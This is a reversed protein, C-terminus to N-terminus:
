AGVPMIGLPLGTTTAKSSIKSVNRTIPITIREGNLLQMDTGDNACIGAASVAIHTNNGSGNVITVADADFTGTAFSTDAVQVLIAGEGTFGNISVLTNVVEVKDYLNDTGAAAM